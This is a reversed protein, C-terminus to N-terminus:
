SRRCVLLVNREIERAFHMWRVITLGRVIWLLHRVLTFGDHSSGGWLLWRLVLGLETYPLLPGERRGM